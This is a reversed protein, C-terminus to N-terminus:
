PHDKDQAVPEAPHRRWWSAILSGLLNQIVGSFVAPVAALPETPFNKKALM